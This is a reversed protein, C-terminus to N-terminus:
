KFFPKENQKVRRKQNKKYVRNRKKVTKKKIYGLILFLQKNSPFSPFVKKQVRNRNEKKKKFLCHTRSFIRQKKMIKSVTQIRKERGKLACFFLCFFAKM